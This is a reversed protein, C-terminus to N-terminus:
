YIFDLVNLPSDVKVKGFFPQKESKKFFVTISISIFTTPRSLYPRLICLIFFISGRHIKFRNLFNYERLRAMKRFCACVKNAVHAGCATCSTESEKVRESVWEEREKQRKFDLWTRKNIANGFKGHHTINILYVGFRLYGPSALEVYFLFARRRTPSLFNILLHFGFREPTLRSQGKSLFTINGIKKLIVTISITIMTTPWSLYPRLICLIFIYKWLSNQLSQSFQVGTITPYVFSM